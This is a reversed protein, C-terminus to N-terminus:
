MGYFIRPEHVIRYNRKLLPIFLYAYPANCVKCLTFEFHMRIDVKTLLGM